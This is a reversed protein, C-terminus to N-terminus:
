SIQAQAQPNRSWHGLRLAITFAYQNAFSTETMLVPFTNRFTALCIKWTMKRMRINPHVLCSQVFDYSVDSSITGINSSIPMAGGYFSSKESHQSQGPINVSFVQFWFCFLKHCVPMTAILYAVHVVSLNGILSLLFIYYALVWILDCQM